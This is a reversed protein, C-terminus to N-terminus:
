FFNFIWSFWSKSKKIPEIKSKDVQCIGDIEITGKGCIIELQQTESKIENQNLDINDTSVKNKEINRCEQYLMLYYSVEENYEKQYETLSDVLRGIGLVDYKQQDLKMFKENWISCSYLNGSFDYLKSEIPLPNKELVSQNCDDLADAALEVKFDWVTIRELERAMQSAQQTNHYKQLSEECVKFEEKLFELKENFCLIQKLTPLKHLEYFRLIVCRKHM